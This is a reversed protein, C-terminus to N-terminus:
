RRTSGRRLGPRGARASPRTVQASLILLDLIRVETLQYSRTALEQRVAQVAAVNQDLDRKFGRVLGLAREAFPAKAGLDDDRLYTQVISDLMPILAPRKPYLAKTMKSVGVGRIDAFAGFLQTLPLWPVLDPAGALSADPAIARLASEIARRRELIAAIQAASIRAGGRNALRLDPEGFAAPRAPDGSDFGGRPRLSGLVVTLPDEIRVGDRLVVPRIPSGTM